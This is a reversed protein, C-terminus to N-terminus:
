TVNEVRPLVFLSLEVEVENNTQTEKLPYSTVGASKFRSDLVKVVDDFDKDLDVLRMYAGRMTVKGEYSFGKVSDLFEGAQDLVTVLVNGGQSESITPNEQVVKKGAIFLARLLTMSNM